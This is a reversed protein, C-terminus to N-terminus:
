ESNDKRATKKTDQVERPVPVSYEARQTKATHGPAPMEGPLGSVQTPGRSVADRCIQRSHSNRHEICIGWLFPPIPGASATQTGQKGRARRPPQTRAPPVGLPALATASQGQRLGQPPPIGRGEGLLPATSTGSRPRKLLTPPCPARPAPGSTSGLTVFHKGLRKPFRSWGTLSLFTLYQPSLSTIQRPASPTEMNPKNFHHM